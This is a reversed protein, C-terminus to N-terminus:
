YPETGTAARSSCNNLREGDGEPFSASVDRPRAAPSYGLPNISPRLGASTAASRSRNRVQGRPQHRAQGAGDDVHARGAQGLGPRGAPVRGGREAIGGGRVQLLRVTVFDRSLEFLGKDRFTGACLM